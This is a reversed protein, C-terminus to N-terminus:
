VGKYGIDRLYFFPQDAKHIYVWRPISILEKSLRMAMESSYKTALLIHWGRLQSDKPLVFGLWIPDCYEIGHWL